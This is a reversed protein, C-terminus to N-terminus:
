LTSLITNYNESMKSINFKVVAKRRAALRLTTFNDYKSIVRELAAKLTQQDGVPFLIGDVGDNIIEPTGGTFSAIVVKGCSMAEYITTGLAESMIADSNNVIIDVGNYLLRTDEIFGGYILDNNEEVALKVAAVYAPQDEAYRGALILKINKNTQQLEKFVQILELQGKGSTVKGVISIVLQDDSFGHKSRFLRRLEEDPKFHSPDIGNYLVTIKESPKFKRAAADSVVLTKDYWSANFRSLIHDLRSYYKIDHDSWIWKVRRRFIKSVVILPLLYSSPVNTNAHVVEIKHKRIYKNVIFPLRLYKNLAQLYPKFGKTTTRNIKSLKDVVNIKYPPKSAILKEAFVGPAILLHINLKDANYDMLRAIVIEAGQAKEGGFVFLINPKM